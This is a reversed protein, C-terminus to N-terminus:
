QNITSPQLDKLNGYRWADLASKTTIPHGSPDYKIPIGRTRFRMATKESVKLHDAIQNWRDLIDTM